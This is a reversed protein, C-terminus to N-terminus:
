GLFARDFCDLVAAGFAANGHTPDGDRAFEPRLFGAGDCTASRIDLVTAGAARLADGFVREYRDVGPKHEPPMRPPSPAAFVAIGRDTMARTLAVIAARTDLVSQDFAAASAQLGTKARWDAFQEVLRLGNYGMTSLVPGQYTLLDAFRDAVPECVPHTLILRDGDIDFFPEELTRGAGLPGGRFPRNAQAAAEGIAVAHSDGILFFENPPM